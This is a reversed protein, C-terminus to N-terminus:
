YNQKEPEDCISGRLVYVRLDSVRREAEERYRDVIWKYTQPHTETYRFGEVGDLAHNSLLILHPPTSELRDIEKFEFGPARPILSYIEWIPVKFRRIANVGPMDPIALVGGKPCGAEDLAKEVASLRASVRKTIWLKEGDVAAEVLVQKILQHRLFVNENTVTFLSVLIVGVIMVSRQPLSARCIVALLGILAPYIAMSLHTLDARSFGYHSYPIAAVISAVLLRLGDDGLAFGNRVWLAAGAMPLLVLAVFGFGVSRETLQLLFGVNELEVSWPWPVSLPINTGTRFIALVSEVFAPGFGEAFGAVLFTPSFGLLVGAAFSRYRLLVSRYDNGRWFLVCVVLVSAAAGYVGHNRGIVAVLGLCVGAGFWDIARQSRLMIFLLAVVLVSATHDFVKYYPVVWLVFVFAGCIGLIWEFTGLKRCAMLCLYVALSVGLAQLVMAAVRAAFLGDSKLLLMFAGAWYYRGVDYAMFDRLPVEGTLVRQAGYWYFGEDALDFGYRWTTFFWLTSVSFGCGLALLVRTRSVAGHSRSIVM